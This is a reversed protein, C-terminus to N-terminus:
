QVETKLSNYSGSVTNTYFVVTNGKADELIMYGAMTVVEDDSNVRVNLKVVGSMATKSSIYKESNEYTLTAQSTGTAYLIGHEILKYGDIISRTANATIKHVAGEVVTPDSITIVPKIVASVDTGETVYEATLSVNKGVLVCYDKRYSLVKGNSTWRFFDYGNIEPAEVDKGTGVRVTTESYVYPTEDGCKVNVTVTYELNSQTYEPVVNVVDKDAYLSKIANETAETNTGEIVWKAFNYGLKTPQYPFEIADNTTYVKGSLVQGSASVFQVYAQNQGEAKYVLKVTTNAGVTLTISASRGLVKGSANQWQLVKEADDATLTVSEGLKVSTLDVNNEVTYTAGNETLVTVAATGNAEYGAVLTVDERPNFTYTLTDSVLNNKVYWGVFRFGATRPAKVTVTDGDLIMDPATIEIDGIGNSTQASITVIRTLKLEGNEESLLYKLSDSFFNNITGKENEGGIDLGNTIVSTNARSVGIISNKLDGNVKIKANGLLFLNSNKNLSYNNIIAISGSVTFAAGSEVVIGGGNSTSRGGTVVGGGVTDILNLTGGTKVTIVSGHEVAAEETLGRDLTYGKLDLTVTKGYPVVLGESESGATLDGDLEVYIENEGEEFAFLANWKDNGTIVYYKNGDVATVETYIDGPNTSKFVRIGKVNQPEGFLATTYCEEYVDDKIKNKDSYHVLESAGTVDLGDAITPNFLCNYLYAKEKNLGIFGGSHKYDRGTFAGDFYSNSITASNEAIGILGGHNAYASGNTKYNNVITVNVHINNLTIQGDSLNNGSSGVLGAAFQGDTTITGSVTLNEITTNKVYAFPAVYGNNCSYWSDSSNLNVYLTNNAGDFSGAFRKRSNKNNKETQRGISKTVPNEESGIDATMIFSLEECTNGAAVYDCLANWDEISTIMYKGNEDATLVHGNLLEITNESEASVVAPLLGALMVVTLLVSIVNKIKRM